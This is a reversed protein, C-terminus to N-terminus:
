KKQHWWMAIPESHFGSKNRYHYGGARSHSLIGQLIASWDRSWRKKENGICAWPQIIVEVSGLCLVTPLFLMWIQLCARRHIGEKTKGNICGLRRHCFWPRGANELVMLPASEKPEMRDAVVSYTKRMQVASMLRNQKDISSWTQNRWFFDIFPYFYSRVEFVLGGM